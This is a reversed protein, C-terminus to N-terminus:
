IIFNFFTSRSCHSVSQKWLWSLLLLFNFVTRSGQEKNESCGYAIHKPKWNTLFLCIHDFINRFYAAYKCQIPVDLKSSDSVAMVQNRMNSIRPQLLIAMLKYKLLSLFGM